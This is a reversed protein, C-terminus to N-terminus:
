WGVKIVVKRVQTHPPPTGPEIMPKHCDQPGFITFCGAPVLLLDGQGAFFAVDRELSHPETVEMESTRAWGMREAGQAIFQVDWYRRHAEWRCDEERKPQYEQVLAFLNEGDIVTKGLPLALMDGRLFELAQALRPHLSAYLPSNSLHDILM